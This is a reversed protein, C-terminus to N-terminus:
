GSTGMYVHVHMHMCKNLTYILDYYASLKYTSLAPHFFLPM